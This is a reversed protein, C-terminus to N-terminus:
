RLKELLISIFQCDWWRMRPFPLPNGQRNPPTLVSTASSETHSFPLPHWWDPHEAWCQWGWGKELARVKPQRLQAVPMLSLVAHVKSHETWKLTPKTILCAHQTPEHWWGRHSPPQLARCLKEQLTLPSCVPGTTGGLSVDKTKWRRGELHWDTMLGPRLTRGQAPGLTTTNQALGTKLPQFRLTM